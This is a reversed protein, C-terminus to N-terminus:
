KKKITRTQNEDGNTEKEKKFYVKVDANHKRSLLYSLIYEIRVITDNRNM